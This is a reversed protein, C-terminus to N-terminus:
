RGGIPRDVGTTTAPAPGDGLYFAECLKGLVKGADTTTPVPAKGDPSDLVVNNIFFAVVLPRGAATEMYGALAKSTLLRRGILADNVFMTGTKARAHGRAPSDEGVARALTGDRGLIPLAADYAAFDPRDAMARLLTTAARPTVMDAWEGGAGGGFSITLPDLGLDKLIEGQRRLGAALTREGKKEALLLPLTSAHLNHSVKLIVRAFERFPPSTYEAVKPLSALASPPPLDAEPNDALPSAPVQVGRRRLAEILLSRAFSAPDDVEITDVLPEPGAPVRGRVSIRRAGVFSARIHADEGATTEVQADVSVFQTAPIIAVSAPEGATKGPTVVVDILNDNIMIPSIREPGSGSSDARDFLRADVVVEGTIKKIGAAQVERALHELGALPDGKVLVESAKGASAYIHDEDTFLLKGDPGTRGGMAPDGKAILILDGNLTGERDVGGRRLIPTQFRYDAGLEVMAAATSFLKATSATGFLEDANKEYVTEGTKADVALVGWHAHRFAPTALVAKVREELTSPSSAEAPPPSSPKVPEEAVANAALGHLVAVAGAWSARGRSGNGARTM